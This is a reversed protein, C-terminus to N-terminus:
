FSDSDRSTPQASVGFNLDFPLSKFDLENWYNSQSQPSKRQKRPKTENETAAAKISEEPVRVMGIGGSGGTFPLLLWIRNEDRKRIPIIQAGREPFRPDRIVIGQPSIEWKGVEPKLFNVMKISGDKSLSMYANGRFLRVISREKDTIGWKFFEDTYKWTGIMFDSSVRDEIGLLSLPSLIIDEKPVASSLFSILALVLVQAKLLVGDGHYLLKIYVIV